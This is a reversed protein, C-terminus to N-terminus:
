TNATVIKRTMNPSIVHPFTCRYIGASTPATRTMTTHKEEDHLIGSRYRADQIQSLQNLGLEPERVLLMWDRPMLQCVMTKTAPMITMTSPSALAPKKRHIHRTTALEHVVPDNGIRTLKMSREPEREINMSLMVTISNMADTVTSIARRSFNSGTGTMMASTNAELVPPLAVIDPSGGLMMM